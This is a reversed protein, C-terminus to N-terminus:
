TIVKLKKDGNVALVQVFGNSLGAIVNDEHLAIGM